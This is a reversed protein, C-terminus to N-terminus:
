AVESMMTPISGAFMVGFGAFMVGILRTVSLISIPDNNHRVGINHSTHSVCEGFLLTGTTVMYYAPFSMGIWAWFVLEVVPTM